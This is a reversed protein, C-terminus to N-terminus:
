RSRLQFITSDGTNSITITYNILDGINIKNDSNVDQWIQSKSVGLSPFFSLQTITPDNDQPTLPDDSTDSVVTSNITSASVVAQNKLYALNVADTNVTFLGIITKSSNSSIVGAYSGINSEAKAQTAGETFIYPSAGEGEELQAGWFYTYTGYQHPSFGYKGTGIFDDTTFVIEYRKFKYNESFTFTKSVQASQVLQNNAPPQFGNHGFLTIDTGLSGMAYVSFTYTTNAQVNFEFHNNASYNNGRIALSGYGSNTIQHGGGPNQDNVEVYGRGQSILNRWISNNTLENNDFLAGPLFYEIGDPLYQPQSSDEIISTNVISSHRNNDVHYSWLLNNTAARDTAISQTIVTDSDGAVLNDTISLNQIDTNGDNTVTFQYRIVDGLDTVGNNNVDVTEFTKELTVGTVEPLNLITPDNDAPTSPDDSVDVVPTVQGFPVTSVVISNSVLASNVTTQELTYSMQLTIQGGTLIETISSGDSASVLSLNSPLLFMGMVM